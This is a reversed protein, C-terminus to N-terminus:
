RHDQSVLLVGRMMTGSLVLPFGAVVALMEM